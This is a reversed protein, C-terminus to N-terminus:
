PSGSPGSARRTVPIAAAGAVALGGALLRLDMFTLVTLAGALALAGLTGTWRLRPKFSLIGLAAYALLVIAYGGLWVPPIGARFGVVGWLVLWLLGTALLAVKANRDPYPDV